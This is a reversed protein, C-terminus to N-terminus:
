PSHLRLPNALFGNVSIFSKSTQFPLNIHRRPRVEPDHEGMKKRRIEVVKEYLGLAAGFDRSRRICEILPPLLPRVKNKALRM